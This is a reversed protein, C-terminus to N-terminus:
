FVIEVSLGLTLNKETMMLQNLSLDIDHVFTTDDAFLKETAPLYKGLDIYILFFLWRLFSGQPVGALPLSSAQGILLVRQLRGSLFSKILRLLTVSIGSSQIKLILGQHWIRIM